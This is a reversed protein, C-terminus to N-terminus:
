LAQSHEAEGARLWSSTLYKHCSMIYLVFQATKRSPCVSSARLAKGSTRLIECRHKEADKGM